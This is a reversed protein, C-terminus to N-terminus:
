VIRQPHRNRRSQVFKRWEMPHLHRMAKGLGFRGGGRHTRLQKDEIEIGRRAPLDFEKVFQLRVTGVGAYEHDSGSGRAFQSGLAPGGTRDLEDFFWEVQGFKTGRDLRQKPRPRDQGHRAKAAREAVQVYDIYDL